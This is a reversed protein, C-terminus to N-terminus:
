LLNVPSQGNKRRSDETVLSVATTKADRPLAEIIPLESIKISYVQSMDPNLQEIILSHLNLGLFLTFSSLNSNRYALDVNSILTYAIIYQYLYSRM